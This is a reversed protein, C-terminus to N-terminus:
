DNCRPGARSASPRRRRSGCGSRCHQLLSQRQFLRAMQLASAAVADPSLLSGAANSLWCSRRSGVVVDPVARCGAFRFVQNPSAVGIPLASAVVAEPYFIAMQLASAVVADPVLSSMPACRYLRCLSVSRSPLVVGTRLASAVGADPSLTVM